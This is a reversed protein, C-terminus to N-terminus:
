GVMGERCLSFDYKIPDSKCLKKLNETIEISMKWSSTNKTTLGLQKSVKAVHTDVPIFLQSTPIFKWIGLDIGDDERAMWRLFMAIRKCPSGASPSPLLWDFYNRHISFERGITKIEQTFLEVFLEGSESKKWIIEAFATFTSHKTRILKLVECLLAIDDGIHFRYKFGNFRDRKEELSTDDIFKLSLNDSNSLITEIAKIIQSVRGYSLLAAIFAIEPLQETNKFRHVVTLPDITLYTPSHYQDLITQIKKRKIM